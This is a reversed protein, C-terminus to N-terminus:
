SKDFSALLERELCAPFEMKEFELGTDGPAAVRVLGTMLEQDRHGTLEGDRRIVSGFDARPIEVARRM